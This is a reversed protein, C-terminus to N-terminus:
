ADADRHADVIAARERVGVGRGDGGLQGVWARRRRARARQRQRSVRKLGHRKHRKRPLLAHRAEPRPRGVGVGDLGRRAASQHHRPDGLAALVEDEAAALAPADQERRAVARAGRPRHVGDEALAVALEGRAEHGNRGGRRRRRRRPVRLHVPPVGHAVRRRRRRGLPVGVVEKRAGLHARPRLREAFAPELADLVALEADFDALEKARPLGDETGRHLGRVTLSQAPVAADASIM